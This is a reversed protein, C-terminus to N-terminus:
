GIFRIEKLWGECLSTWMCLYPNDEALGVGHKGTMFVHLAHRVRHQSLAQAFLLSNEVPVSMDDGTHWLFSPPTDENVQTENSLAALLATPPEAGLLARCSGDHRHKGFTIVPYCLIQVDPRSSYREVPDEAHPDGCDYHTSVTSALHGGASFGLIGVRKEDIGYQAARERVLRIARQADLWPLPHRYPAVRYDLVFASVGISNLWMAVPAGEHAAKHGYGGGPCIIVAPCPGKGNLLYPMMNPKEQSIAPDFGPVDDDWLCIKM